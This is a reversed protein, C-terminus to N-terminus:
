GKGNKQSHISQKYLAYLEATYHYESDVIDWWKNHHTSYIYNKVCWENFEKAGKEVELDILPNNSIYERAIEINGKYNPEHWKKEANGAAIFDAYNALYIAMAESTESQFINPKEGEPTDWYGGTLKSLEKITDVYSEKKQGKDAPNAKVFREWDLIFYGATNEDLMNTADQRDCFVYTFVQQEVNRYGKYKMIDYYVTLYTQKDVCKILTKTGKVKSWHLGDRKDIPESASSLIEETMVTCDCKLIGRAARYPKKFKYRDDVNRWNTVQYYEGISERYWGVGSCCRDIRVVIKKKKVLGIAEEKTLNEGM